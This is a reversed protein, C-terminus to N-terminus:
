DSTDVPLGGKGVPGGCGGCGHLLGILLLALAIKRHISM